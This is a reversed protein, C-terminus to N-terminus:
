QRLPTRKQFSRHGSESGRRTRRSRVQAQEWKRRAGAVSSPGSSRLGAIASPKVCSGFWLADQRRCKRVKGSGGQCEIAFVRRRETDPEVRVISRATTVRPWRRPRPAAGSRNRGFRRSGNRPTAISASSRPVRLTTACTWARPNTARPRRVGASWPRSRSRGRSM